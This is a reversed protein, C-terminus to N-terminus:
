SKSTQTLRSSGNGLRDIAEAKDFFAKLSPAISLLNGISSSVSDGSLWREITCAEALKTAMDDRGLQVLVEYLGEKAATFRDVAAKTNAELEEIVLTQAEKKLALRQKEAAADRELSANHSIGNLEEKEAVQQKQKEIKKLEADVQALALELQDNILEKQLDLKTRETTHQAELKAQRIQEQERVIELDKRARDLEINAKVVDHQAQDLLGSIQPDSLKIDLVEVEIVRMGNDFGLGPRRTNLPESAEGNGTRKTGLIADRVLDVYNGKIEAIAHRKAMGAIISRVHDCLYKIYNDVGFWRLKDEDTEAEFNVRMSIKITGSVHDRSEFAVIDGVQNNQVCLYSTKLLKDTNKPKGTSLEMHGLKEDYELLIVQPGEIVRRHGESGVVLVAYGPWVEIKPVGDYKTNLTLQRPETYRTGRTLSAGVSGEAGVEEREFEEPGAFAELAMDETPMAAAYMAGGRRRAKAQRKRWDGESVLGSRGSPSEAMAEALETNYAVAEQNGPYMLNCEDLSLIRRVLIQKRPDPLLMKPGKILEIKGTERDILYRGEGKPIATSYHKKNGQGYEIIALEERPYYIALTKGTVFLEEGEHYQRQPRKGDELPKELDEGLFDATVKLHLGNITNLEIPRFKRRGKSDKEFIQTPKPFVVKPGKPYEKKGSEDVLCCYEMQELTVADRVYKGTEEDRLVEVGTCPIYFSVDTGKIIIRTGVALTEPKPLGKSKIEERKEQTVQEAGGDAAEKQIPETQVKAVTGKEWNQEAQDSNYVIAILYQNSRLRHGEIVTAIQGPWLADSWPGPIVIKRGKVLEIANQSTESPFKKGDSERSPNEIIVYDGEAARPFVTVAQELSCPRFTRSNHDYRVPIDQGSQTVVTPGRRISIVGGSGINQLYLYSDPAIPFDRNQDAAM